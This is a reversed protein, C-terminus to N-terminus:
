IIDKRYNKIIKQILYIVLCSFFASFGLAGGIGKLHQILYCYIFSYILGALSLQWRTLRKSDSMGIFSGGFFAARLLYTTPGVQFSTLAIFILTCLSSARVSHFNKKIVLYHTFHIAILSILYVEIFFQM